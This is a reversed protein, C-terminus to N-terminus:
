GSVLDEKPQVSFTFHEEPLFGDKKLQEFYEGPTVTNAGRKNMTLASQEKQVKHAIEHAREAKRDRPQTRAPQGMALERKERKTLTM